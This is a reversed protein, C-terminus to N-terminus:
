GGGWRVGSTAEERLKARGVAGGLVKGDATVTVPVVIEPGGRRSSGARPGRTSQLNRPTPPGIFPGQSGRVGRAGGPRGVENLGPKRTSPRIDIGPIPKHKSTDNGPILNKADDIADSIEDEYEKLLLALGITAAVAFAAGFLRGGRRGMKGSAKDSKGGITGGAAMEIGLAAALQPAYSAIFRKAAVKGLAGWLGMKQGIFLGAFLKGWIGAHWWGKVFILAAKGSGKAAVELMRPFAWEFAALVKEGVDNEDFADGIAKGAKSFKEEVSLTKDGAILSLQNLLEESEDAAERLYPTLMTGITIGFTEASGSLRELQGALNDQRKAAAKAATGEEKNAAMWKKIEKPGSKYLAFLTRIADSGAIVGAKNTFQEQTLDGFSGQLVKSIESLSKLRGEQDYLELNLSAMAKKAKESPTALNLFFAKMSTGADQGKVGAEALAELITVSENFGLGAIRAAAGGQRLAMGFDGVDATTKNAATALADAVKMSDRGRIGFLKMANVTYAAAEGLELEGAAALALASDLGGSMIQRVTLGGKALETQAEAAERASFATALGAKLAQARFIDMQKATAGTVAATASLQKDFAITAKIAFGLGLTAAAGAYRAGRGLATFGKRMSDQSKSAVHMRGSMRKARDGMNAISAAARDADAKFQRAGQLRVRVDVDEEAM